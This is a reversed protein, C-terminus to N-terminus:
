RGGAAALRDAPGALKLQDSALHSAGILDMDVGRVPCRSTGASALVSLELGPEALLLLILDLLGQATGPLEILVAGAAPWSGPRSGVSLNGALSTVRQGLLSKGKTFAGPPASTALLVPRM